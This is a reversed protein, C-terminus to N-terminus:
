RRGALLRKLLGNASGYLDAAFKDLIAPSADPSDTSIRVLVGDPIIGAMNQEFVAMRQESWRRPFEAGLRTWYIMQEKRTPSDAVIFRSPILVQPALKAVHDQVTSLNYGSAPYCIEPRHIQVVGDQSGGYAILLMISQGDGRNYVRTLLQHYIKTVLQDQPPLVLGSSTVYEWGAFHTPVISDLKTSGMFADDKRPKRVFAITAATLCGAGILFQRRSGLLAPRAKPITIDTM